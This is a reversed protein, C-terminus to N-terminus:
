YFFPKKSVAKLFKNTKAFYKLKDKFSEAYALMNKSPQVNYNLGLPFVECNPPQYERMRPDYSRKFYFDTKFAKQFHELNIISDGPVWTLGDLADYVVRYKRDIVANILPISSSTHKIRKITLDIIGLKELEFFGTYIQMLHPNPFYELECEFLKSM